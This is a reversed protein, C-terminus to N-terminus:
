KGYEEGFISRAEYYKNINSLTQNFEEQTIKGEEIAKKIDDIHLLTPKKSIGEKIGLKSIDDNNKNAQYRREYIRRISDKTVLKLFRALKEEEPIEKKLKEFNELKEKEEATQMYESKMQIHSIEEAAEMIGTYLNINDIWTQPDLTGNPIRFEITDIKIDKDIGTALNIFNVEYGKIGRQQDVLQKKLEELQWNNTIDIHGTKIENQIKESIPKAHKNTGKRLTDGEPTSLRYLIEECNTVIEILNKYSQVSSLIDAGIHVHAGCDEDTYQGISELFACMEVIENERGEGKRIIPSKLEVGELGLSPDYSTRWNTNDVDEFVYFLPGKKKEQPKKFLLDRLIASYPGKTEIEIGITTNPNSEINRDLEKKYKNLKEKNSIFFNLLAIEQENFDYKKANNIQETIYENNRTLLILEIIQEKSLELDNRRKLCYQILNFDRCNEVIKLLNSKTVKDLQKTESKKTEELEKEIYQIIIDPNEYHNLIKRVSYSGLKIKPNRGLICDNIYEEDTIELIIDIVYENDFDEEEIVKKMFESDKTSILLEKTTLQSLGYLNRNTIYYKLEEKDATEEIIQSIEPDGKHFLSGDLLSKRIFTAKTKRLLQKVQYKHLELEERHEIIHENLEELHVAEVYKILKDNRLRHRRIHEIAEEKTVLRM